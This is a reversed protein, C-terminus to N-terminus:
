IIGRRQLHLQGRRLHEYKAKRLGRRSVVTEDLRASHHALYHDYDSSCCFACVGRSGQQEFAELDERSRHIRLYFPHRPPRRQHLDLVVAAQTSESLDSLTAERGLRSRSVM